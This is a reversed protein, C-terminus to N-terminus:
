RVLSEPGRDKQSKSRWKQANDGNPDNRNNALIPVPDRKWNSRTRHLIMMGNAKRCHFASYTGLCTRIM